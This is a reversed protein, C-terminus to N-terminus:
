NEQYRRRLQGCAGDIDEGREKRISVPINHNSLIQYFEKLRVKSPKKINQDGVPNAPILNVHGSLGKLRQALKKAKANSDNVGALLIYEFTIRRGVKEMYTKCADLVEQIPYKQNIPMLKSRTENDPAHLSVALTVPLKSEAFKVIRPAIGATSVTVNRLSIGLGQPNNATELFKVLSRLNNLPEGMGMVVINKIKEEKEIEALANEALIVQDLMEGPSLNRVLGGKASACFVCALGCGIQSSVCVTNGYDQRMVASEILHNDLTELLLKITKDKPSVIKEKISLMNLQVEQKLKERLSVPLNSMEEAHLVKKQYIWDLLQDARYAPENMDLFLRSVEAPSYDKLPIKEQCM